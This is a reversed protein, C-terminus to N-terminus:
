ASLASERRRVMFLRENTSAGLGGGVIAAALALAAGVFSAWLLAEVYDAATEAAAEIEARLEKVEAEFRKSVGQVLADVEKRSLSTDRELVERAAQPEGMVLHKGAAALTEGDLDEMAQELASQDVEGNSVSALAASTEHKLEAQLKRSLDSSMVESLSETLDVDSQLRGGLVLTSASAGAQGAEATGSAGTFGLVVATVAALGWLTAGQLMGEQQETAGSLRATLMGGLFYAVLWSFAVWLAAGIGFGAGLAELDTSDAISFGAATGFLMLLWGLGLTLALGGLLAGCHVPAPRPIESAVVTKPTSTV